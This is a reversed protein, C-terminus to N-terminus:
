SGHAVIQVLKLGIIRAIAVIFRDITIFVVATTAWGKDSAFMATFIIKNPYFCFVSEPSCANMAYDM